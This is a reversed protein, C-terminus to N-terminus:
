TINVPTLSRPNTGLLTVTQDEDAEIASYSLPLNGTSSWTIIDVYLDAASISNNDIRLVDNSPNFAISAGADLSKWFYTAM